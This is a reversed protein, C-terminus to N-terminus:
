VMKSALGMFFRTNMAEFMALSVVNLDEVVQMPNPIPVSQVPSRYVENLNRYDDDDDDFGDLGSPDPRSYKQRRYSNGYRPQENISQVTQGNIKIEFSTDFQNKVEDINEDIKYKSLDFIERLNDEKPSFGCNQTEKLFEM